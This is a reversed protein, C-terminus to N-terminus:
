ARHEAHGPVLMDRLERGVAELSHELPAGIALFGSEPAFDPTGVGYLRHVGDPGVLEVIGGGERAVASMRALTDASVRRARWRELEPQHALM